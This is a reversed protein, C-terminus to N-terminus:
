DIKPKAMNTAPADKGKAGPPAPPISAPAKTETCGPIASLILLTGFLAFFSRCLM